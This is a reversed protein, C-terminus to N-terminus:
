NVIIISWTIFYVNFVLLFNVRIESHHELKCECILKLYYKSMMSEELLLDTPDRGVRSHVNRLALNWVASDAM